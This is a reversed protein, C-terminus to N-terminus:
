EKKNESYDIFTYKNMIRRVSWEYASLMMSSLLLLLVTFFHVSWTMSLTSIIGLTLIVSAATIPLGVFHATQQEQFRALRIASALLYFLLASLFFISTESAYLQYLLILPSIGFSVIDSLSDLTKGFISTTHLFRALAGDFFDFCSALLIFFIAAQVKGEIALVLAFFGASLNSITLFNAAQERIFTKVHSTREKMMPPMEM